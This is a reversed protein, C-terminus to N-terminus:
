DLPLNEKAWAEFLPVLWSKVAPNIMGILEGEENFYTPSAQNQMERARGNSIKEWTHSEENWSSATSINGTNYFGASVGLLLLNFGRRDSYNKANVYIRPTGGTRPRWVSFIIPTESLKDQLSNTPTSM